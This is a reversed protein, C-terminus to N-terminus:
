ASHLISFFAFTRSKSQIIAEWQELRISMSPHPVKLATRLISNVRIYTVSWQFYLWRFLITMHFVATATRTHWNLLRADQCIKVKLHEGECTSTKYLTKLNAESFLNTRPWLWPLMLSILRCCCAFAVPILSGPGYTSHWNRLQRTCSHFFISYIRRPIM